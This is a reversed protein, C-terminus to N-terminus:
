EKQWVDEYEKHRRFLALAYSCAPVIRKNTERAEEVVRKVLSEAVKQGRLAPAVYTHDIVLTGEGQPVFTIEAVVDGGERVVYGNGEKATEM